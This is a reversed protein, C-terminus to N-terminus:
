ELVTQLHQPLFPWGFASQLFFPSFHLKHPFTPCMAATHRVFSSAFLPVVALGESGDGVLDRFFVIDWSFCDHFHTNQSQQLGNSLDFHVPQEFSMTPDWFSHTLSLRSFALCTMEFSASDM